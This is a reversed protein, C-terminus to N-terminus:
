SQVMIAAEKLLHEKQALDLSLPLQALGILRRLIEIGAFRQMLEESFPHPRSYHNLMTIRDSEPLDALYSHAITVGLDFEAAGFFCFEPDIIKVGHYTRLWSGPYYDGHLLHSGDAQYAEELALIAKKLTADTKYTMSVSQLGPTVLDLDYGNDLLFPYQFIHEGNLTRMSRNSFDHRADTPSFEHHLVSLFEMIGQIDGDAFSEGSLYLYSFDSSEGLDELMLVSHEEDIFSVEPTMDRLTSVTQILEYFRGETVARVKPAAISPYKEVFPRSQKLIFTRFNTRVRLTYNMNGEGPKRATILEEDPGIWRREKLFRQMGKLDDADLLFSTNM